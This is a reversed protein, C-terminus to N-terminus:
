AVSSVIVVGAFGALAVKIQTAIGLVEGPEM